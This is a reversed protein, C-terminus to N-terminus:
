GGLVLRLDAERLKRVRDKFLSRGELDQGHRRTREEVVELITPKEGQDRNRRIRIEDGELSLEILDGEGIGLAEAFDQPLLVVLSNEILGALDKARWARSVWRRRM